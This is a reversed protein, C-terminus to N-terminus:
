MQISAEEKLSTSDLAAEGSVLDGCLSVQCLTRQSAAGGGLQPLHTRNTMHHGQPRDYFSGAFTSVLLVLEVIVEGGEPGPAEEQEQAPQSADRGAAGTWPPSCCPHSIDTVSPLLPRPLHM